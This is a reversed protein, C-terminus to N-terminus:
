VSMLAKKLQKKTWSKYWKIGNEDCSQQLKKKCNYSDLFLLDLLPSPTIECGERDLLELNIPAGDYHKLKGFFDGELQECLNFFAEKLDDSANEPDSLFTSMIYAIEKRKIVFSRPILEVLKQFEKACMYYIHFQLEEPLDFFYNAQM